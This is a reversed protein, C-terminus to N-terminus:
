CTVKTKLESHLKSGKLVNKREIECDDGSLFNYLDRKQKTNGTTKIRDM